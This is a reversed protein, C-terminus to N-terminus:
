LLPASAIKESITLDSDRRIKEVEADEFARRTKLYIGDPDSIQEVTLTTCAEDPNIGLYKAYKSLKQQVDLFDKIIFKRRLLLQEVEMPLITEEIDHTGHKPM